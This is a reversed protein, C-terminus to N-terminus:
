LVESVPANIVRGNTEFLGLLGTAELLYRPRSHLGRLQLLTQRGRSIKLAELLTAIGSLDIFSVETLDITLTSLSGRGLIELIRDRLGPSSNISVRGSLFVLVSGEVESVRVSLERSASADTIPLCKRGLEVTAAGTNKVHGSLDGAIREFGRRAERVLGACQTFHVENGM